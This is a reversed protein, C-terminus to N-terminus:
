CGSKFSRICNSFPPIRLYRYLNCELIYTMMVVATNVGGKSIAMGEVYAVM